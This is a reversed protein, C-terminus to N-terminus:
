DESSLGVGDMSALLDVQRQHAAGRVLDEHADRQQATGEFRALSRQVMATTNEFQATLSDRAADITVCAALSFEHSQHGAASPYELTGSVARHDELVPAEFFMVDGDVFRSEPPVSRGDLGLRVADEDDESVPAPLDLRVCVNPLSLHETCVITTPWPM